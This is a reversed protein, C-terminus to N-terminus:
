LLLLVLFFAMVSAIFHAIAVLRMIPSLQLEVVRAMLQEQRVIVAAFITYMAVMVLIAVKLFGWPFFSLLANVFDTPNM